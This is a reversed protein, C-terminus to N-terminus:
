RVHSGRTTIKIQLSVHGHQLVRLGGHDNVVLLRSIFFYGLFGDVGTPGHQLVSLGRRDNVPKVHSPFLLQSVLLVVLGTNLFM